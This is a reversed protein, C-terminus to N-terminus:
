GASPSQVKPWRAGVQPLVEDILQRTQALM